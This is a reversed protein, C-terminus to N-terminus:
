AWVASQSQSINDSQERRQKTVLSAEGAKRIRRSEQKRMKQQLQRKVRQKVKSSSDASVSCSGSESHAFHSNEAEANDRFPRQQRNQLSLEPTESESDSDNDSSASDAAALRQQCADLPPPAAPEAPSAAEADIIASAPLPPSDFGLEGMMANLDHEEYAGVAEDDDDADDEDDDSGVQQLAGHAELNAELHQQDGKTFGSAQIETDLDGERAVDAFSPALESEYGFRKKFFARICEVDRDFYYEANPHDISVMQPFDYMTVRDEEDLMLNFENFDGHILGHSALRMILEMCESYVAGADRVEHVQQMPHGALLEMVVAHRNFDVPRPTPFGRDYLAKMYAFEKMAALRSLYLWSVRQRNKHYDRKNKLQRFSTRGLRHLKLCMQEDDESAVIYVDSEKGVGIQNGVSQIVGRQALAKIALYDYGANTLRYGAVAKSAHEYSLLKHQTLNRLVKHCGGHSLAAISAALAAPVVDHNRMGMEIATLARFDERSLYRLMTVNLKGM